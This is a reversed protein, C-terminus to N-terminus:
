KLFGRIVILMKTENRHQKLSNHVLGFWFLETFMGDRSHVSLRM